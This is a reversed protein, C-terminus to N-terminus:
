PVRGQLKQLAAAEKALGAGKGLAAASIGLRAALQEADIILVACDKHLQHPIPPIVVGQALSAAGIRAAEIGSAVGAIQPAPTSAGATPLAQVYNLVDTWCAFGDADGAAKADAVAAQLDPVTAAQVDTNLKAQIQSCGTLVGLMTFVFVLIATKM